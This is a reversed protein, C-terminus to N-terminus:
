FGKDWTQAGSLTDREVFTNVDKKIKRCFCVSHTSM